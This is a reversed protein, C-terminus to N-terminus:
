CAGVTIDTFVPPSLSIEHNYKDNGSVKNQKHLTTDVNTDTSSLAPKSFSEEQSSSDNNAHITIISNPKVNNLYSDIKGETFVTYFTDVWEKADLITSFSEEAPMDYRDYLFGAKFGPAYKISGIYAVVSNNFKQEWREKEINFRYGAKTMLDANDPDKEKGLQIAKKNEIYSNVLILCVIFIVIGAVPVINELLFSLIGKVVFIIIAFFFVLSLYQM